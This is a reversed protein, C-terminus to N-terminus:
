PPNGCSALTLAFILANISKPNNFKDDPIFKASSLTLATDLELTSVMEKKSMVDQVVLQNDILKYLKFGALAWIVNNKDCVVQIISRVNVKDKFKYNIMGKSTFATLGKNGGWWVNGNNDCTMAFNSNSM